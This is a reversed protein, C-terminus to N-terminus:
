VMRSPAGNDYERRGEKRAEEDGVSCPGSLAEGGQYPNVQGDSINRDADMKEYSWGEM